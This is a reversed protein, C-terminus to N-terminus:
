AVDTADETEAETEALEVLFQLAKAIYLACDKPSREYFDSWAAAKQFEYCGLREPHGDV